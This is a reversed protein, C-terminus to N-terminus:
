PSASGPRRPLETLDDALRSELSGAREREESPGWGTRSGTSAGAAMDLNPCDSPPLLFSPCVEERESNRTISGLAEAPTEQALVSDRAVGLNGEELCRPFWGM